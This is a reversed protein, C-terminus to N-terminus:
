ALVRGNSPDNLADPADFASGHKSSQVMLVYPNLKRCPCSPSVTVASAIEGIRVGWAANSRESHPTVLTGYFQAAFAEATALDKFFWRIYDREGDRRGPVYHDTIARQRHFDHMDELRRGLGGEPVVIEVAYTKSSPTGRYPSM